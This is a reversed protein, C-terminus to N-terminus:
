AEAKNYDATCAFTRSKLWARVDSVKYRVLKETLRIYPPGFGPGKGRAIELFPVSVELWKALQPTSLLTDDDLPIEVLRHARRDILLKGPAPADQPSSMQLPGDYTGLAFLFGGLV